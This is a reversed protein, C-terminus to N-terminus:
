TDFGGRQRELEHVAELVDARHPSIALVDEYAKLAMDTKGAEELIVGLGTLAGFHRPELALVHAIGSMAPGYLGASFYATARGNWGEAFDPAHDILATFHEIAAASDGDQLAANGRELLLNLTPSGSDSWIDRIESEIVAAADADATQLAAFLQELRTDQPGAM